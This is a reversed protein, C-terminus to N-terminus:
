PKRAALMELTGMITEFQGVNVAHHKELNVLKFLFLVDGDSVAFIDMVRVEGKANEAKGKVRLGACGGTGAPSASPKELTKQGSGFMPDTLMLKLLGKAAKEDFGECTMGRKAALRDLVFGPMVGEQLRTIQDVMKTLAEQDKTPKLDIAEASFIVPMGTKEKKGTMMEGQDLASWGAPLALQFQDKMGDFLVFGEPIRASAADTVLFLGICAVLRRM